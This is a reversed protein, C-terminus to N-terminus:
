SQPGILVTRDAFHLTNERHTILIATRNRRLEGFMSFFHTESDRDFMSTAEDLILIPPDILLARALAVRQRQGGSLRIGQDGIITDYGNPLAVVFDHAQAARAAAEIENQSADHDGYAINDRITAHLLQVHQPVYGIMRRLTTLDLARLDVDDILLEGSDPEVFRMLLHVLTTKGIGNDGILAVTEGPEVYLSFDDFL